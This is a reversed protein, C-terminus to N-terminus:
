IKECLIHYIEGIEPESLVLRREKVKLGNEKLLKDIGAKSFNGGMVEDDNPTRGTTFNNG